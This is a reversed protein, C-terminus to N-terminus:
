NIHKKDDKKEDPRLPACAERQLRFWLIDTQNVLTGDNYVYWQSLRNREITDRNGGLAELGLGIDDSVIPFNQSDRINKNLAFAFTNGYLFVNTKIPEEGGLVLVNPYTGSPTNQDITNWVRDTLARSRFFAVSALARQSAVGNIVLCVVSVTIAIWVPRIKSLGYGLLVFLGVSPIVLYRHVETTIVRPDFLWVPLYFLVIWVLALAHGRRKMVNVIALLGFVLIGIWARFKQFVGHSFETTEHSAPIIWGIALNFLSNFYHGIIKTKSLVTMLSPKGRFFQGIQTQAFFDRQVFAYLVFAILFMSYCYLLVRRLRLRRTRSGFIFTVFLAMPLLGIARWPDAFIGLMGLILACILSSNKGFRVYGIWYSLSLTVFIAVIATVHASSWHVSELGVVSTVAILGALIGGHIRGTAAITLRVVSLALIARFLLGIIQWAIVKNGFLRELVIFEVPTAPHLWAGGCADSRSWACWVYRWDDKWFGFNLSEHFTAFSLLILALALLGWTKTQVDIISYAPTSCILNIPVSESIM